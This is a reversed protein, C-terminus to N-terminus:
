PTLITDTMEPLGLVENTWQAAEKIHEEQVALYYEQTTSINSHGALAQVKHIPLKEAWRTIASRRLDHLTCHEVEARRRIVHFDRTINNVVAKREHWKGEQRKQLIIKLREPSIFM